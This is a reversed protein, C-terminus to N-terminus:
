EEDILSVSRVVCHPKCFTFRMEDYRIKVLQGSKSATTLVKVDELSPVWMMVDQTSMSGVGNRIVGLSIDVDTRDDCIIPTMNEVYKVQGTTENDKSLYGWCGSNLILIFFATIKIIKM